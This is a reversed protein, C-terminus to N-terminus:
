TAEKWRTWIGNARPELLGILAMEISYQQRKDRGKTLYVHSFEFRRADWHQLVRRRVDVSQGIYIPRDRRNEALLYVGSMRIDSLAERISTRDSGSGARLEYSEWRTIGYLGLLTRVTEVWEM